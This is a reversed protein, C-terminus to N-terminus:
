FKGRFVWLLASLHKDAKKKYKDRNESNTPYTYKILAYLYRSLDYLILYLYRYLFFYLYSYHKKVFRCRNKQLESYIGPNQETSKGHHHIIDVAPEYIITFGKKKLRFFLDTEEGYIYFNEDFMELDVFVERKIIFFAGSAADIAHSHNYIKTNDHRVIECILSLQPLLYSIGLLEGFQNIFTPFNRIFDQVSHDPYILRGFVAAITKKNLHFLLSNINGILEIDPNALILFDATTTKVAQNVAAAYGANHHNAIMKVDPFLNEVRDVTHDSSANDVLIIEYDMKPLYTYLSQICKVVLEQVNWSVIIIAIKKSRLHDDSNRM